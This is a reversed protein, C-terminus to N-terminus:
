GKTTRRAIAKHTIGNDDTHRDIGVATGITMVQTVAWDAAFLCHECEAISHTATFAYGTPTVTRRDM